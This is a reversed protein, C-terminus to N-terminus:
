TMRHFSEMLKLYFEVDKGCDLFQMQASGKMGQWVCPTGREVPEEVCLGM